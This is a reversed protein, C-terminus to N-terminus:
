MALQCPVSTSWRGPAQVKESRPFAAGQFLIDLGRGMGRAGRRGPARLPFLFICPRRPLELLPISLRGGPRFSLALADVQVHEVLHVSSGDM